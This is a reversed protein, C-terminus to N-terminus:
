KCVIIYIYFYFIFFSFFVFFIAFIIKYNDVIKKNTIKAIGSKCFTLIISVSKKISVGKPKTRIKIIRKILRNAMFAAFFQNKFDFGFV